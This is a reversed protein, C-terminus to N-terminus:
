ENGTIELTRKLKYVIGCKCKVKLEWEAIELKKECRPCKFTYTTGDYHEHTVIDKVVIKGM